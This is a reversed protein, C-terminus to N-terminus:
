TINIEFIVDEIPGTIKKTKPDEQFGFNHGFSSVSCEVNFRASVKGFDSARYIKHVNISYDENIKIPGKQGAFNDIIEHLKSKPLNIKFPGKKSFNIPQGENLIGALEQIRKLQENIEDHHLEHFGQAAQDIYNEANTIHDQIWGPINREENGLKNLLTVSSKIISKLSSMAMAVEHDGGEKINKAIAKRRNALYKDTKDKDGDNDIDADEQGVPDLKELLDTLKIM